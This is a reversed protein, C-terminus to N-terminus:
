GSDYTGLYVLIRLNFDKFRTPLERKARFRPLVPHCMYSLGSWIRANATLEFDKFSTLHQAFLSRLIVSRFGVQNALHIQDLRLVRPHQRHQHVDGFLDDAPPNDAAGGLLSSKNTIKLDKLIKNTITLSKRHRFVLVILRCPLRSHQRHQHVVGLLDDAPPDAAAGGANQPKKYMDIYM